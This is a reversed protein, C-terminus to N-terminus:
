VMCIDASVTAITDAQHGSFGLFTNGRASDTLTKIEGSALNTETSDFGRSLGLSLKILGKGQHTQALTCRPRLRDSRFSLSRQGSFTLAGLRSRETGQHTYGQHAKM